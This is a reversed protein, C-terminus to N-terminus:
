KIIRLLKNEVYTPTRLQLFYQGTGLETTNLQITHTGRIRKESKIITRVVEGMTNYLILETAGQEILSIEIEVNNEAPNPAINLIGAKSYPNILRAGGERCIGLLTFKGYRYEVDYDIKSGIGDYFAFDLIEIVTEEVYGLGFIIPLSTLLNSNPIEGDLQVIISDNSINGIMSADQPYLISRQFKIKASFRSALAQIGEPKINELQLRIMKIEGAYGSDNPSSVTGGIGTSFLHVIAPSGTGNYEFGIRGSTRGGYQPKFQLTLKRESYPSLVFSGGGSLIEFQEIDPSMKITNNITLPSGSINKLLVTDQIIKDNGIEVEGFDLIGSYVQLQPQVGEGRITQVLTESQTIVVIEATHIGVRSPIFRFEGYHTDNPKVEYKPFGSVLSFATEDAGRFYISDVRFQWGGINQIFDVVVSDKVTGVLVQLMDINQSAPQPLVVEWYADSTDSQMQAKAVTGMIVFAVLVLIFRSM